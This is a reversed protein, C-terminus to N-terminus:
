HKKTSEGNDFKAINRDNDGDDATATNKLASRSIIKKIKDWDLEITPRVWAKHLKTDEWYWEQIDNKVRRPNM